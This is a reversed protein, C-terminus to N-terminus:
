YGPNQTLVGNGVLDIESQPIPLLEDRNVTFNKFALATAADGWRVLDTFRDWGETALELRRQLKVDSLSYSALNHSANGYAREIVMNLNQLGEADGTNLCAEANMLLVDSYRIVKENLPSSGIYPLATAVSKPLYYKRM